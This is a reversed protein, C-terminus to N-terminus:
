DAFPLLPQTKLDQESLTLSPIVDRKAACRSCLLGEDKPDSRDDPLRPIRFELGCNACHIDIYVLGRLEVVRRPDPTTRTRLKTLNLTGDETVAM